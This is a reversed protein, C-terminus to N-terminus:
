AGRALAEVADTRTAHLSFLEDAGSVHLTLAVAGDPWCAVALRRSGEALRRRLVLLAYLGASDMFSTGCLDVVVDGTAKAAEDLDRTMAPTTDADLAGRVILILVGNHVRRTVSFGSAGGEVPPM